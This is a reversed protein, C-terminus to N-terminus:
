PQLIILRLSSQLPIWCGLLSGAFAKLSFLCIYSRCRGSHLMLTSDFAWIIGIRSNIRIYAQAPSIVRCGVANLISCCAFVHKKTLFYLHQWVRFMWVSCLLRATKMPLERRLSCGVSTVSKSCCTFCMPSVIWTIEASNSMLLFVSCLYHSVYEGQFQFKGDWTKFLICTYKYM